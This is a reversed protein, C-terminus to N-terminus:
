PRAGARAKFWDGVRQLLARRVHKPPWVLYAVISAFCVIWVIFIALAVTKDSPLEALMSM